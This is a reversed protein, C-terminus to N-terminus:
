EASDDAGLASAGATHKVKTTTVITCDTNISGLLTQEM